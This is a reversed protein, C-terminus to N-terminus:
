DNAIARGAGTRARRRQRMESATDDTSAHSPSAPMRWLVSVFLSLPMPEDDGKAKRLPANPNSLCLFRQREHSVKQASPRFEVSGLHAHQFMVGADRSLEIVQHGEAVWIILDM